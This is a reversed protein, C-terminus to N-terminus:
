RSANRRNGMVRLPSSLYRAEYVYRLLGATNDVLGNQPASTSVILFLREETSVRRATKQDIHPGDYASGYEANTRPFEEMASRVVGEDAFDNSLLWTRRWIWPDRTNNLALPSYYSPTAAMLPAGNTPDVRLIILGAGVLCAEPYITVGETGVSQEYSCYLKGVIRRLRYGSEQYDALSQVQVTQAAEAPVDTVLSHITTSLAGGTAVGITSAIYSFGSQDGQGILPLWAVAPKRRRFRGM